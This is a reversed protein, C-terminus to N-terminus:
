PITQINFVNTMCYICFLLTRDHSKQMDLCPDPFVRWGHQHLYMIRSASPGASKRHWPAPRRIASCKGEPRRSSLSEVIIFCGVTDLFSELRIPDPVMRSASQQHSPYEKPRPHRIATVGMDTAGPVPVRLLPCPVTQHLPRVPAKLAM